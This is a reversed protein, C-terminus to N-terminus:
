KRSSKQVYEISHPEVFVINGNEDRRVIAKVLDQGRFTPYTYIESEPPYKSVIEELKM